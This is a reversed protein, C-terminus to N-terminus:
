YVLAIGIICSQGRFANCARFDVGTICIVWGRFKATWVYSRSAKHVCASKRGPTSRGVIAEM